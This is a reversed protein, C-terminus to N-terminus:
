AGTAAGCGLDLCVVAADQLDWGGDYVTGWNGKYHVEVRGACPSGGNVLRLKVSEECIVGADRSHPADYDGWPRSRCERLAAESGSCEVDYTVVPGSGPGFHARGPAGTAAGCGLERCVVAADQLDWGGDYVTGWNGKNIVEVRGACPSGGNVLRLKVSEKCEFLDNRVLGTGKGFYAGRPVSVAVGCHLQSCVVNADDMDWARDCVTGWTEGYQVELRGSCQDDKSVLRPEIWPMGSIVLSRLLSLFLQHKGECIVGADRSHPADYDGWSPSKCERLAAESGSCEVDYTVVAGSGPGFHSGGPAGTAAGCGLERCVVAADQLDWGRDYVTGWNGKYHVEVRGACPSGGNVLRLKVSESPDPQCDGPRGIYYIQDM